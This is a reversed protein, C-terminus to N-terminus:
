PNNVLSAQTTYVNINKILGHTTLFLKEGRKFYSHPILRACKQQEIWIQFNAYIKTNEKLKKQLREKM